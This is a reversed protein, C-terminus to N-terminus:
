NVGPTSEQRHSNVRAMSVSQTGGNMKDINAPGQRFPPSTVGINRQGGRVCVGWELRPLGPKTCM